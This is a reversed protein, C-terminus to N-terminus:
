PAGASRAERKYAAGSDCRWCSETLDRPDLHVALRAPRVVRARSGEPAIRIGVDNGGTATDVIAVIGALLPKEPERADHVLVNDGVHLSNWELRRM